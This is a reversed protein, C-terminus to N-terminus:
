RDRSGALSLAAGAVVVLGTVLDNVGAHRIAPDTTYGLFAPAAALFLGLAVNVRSAWRGTSWSLLHLSALFAVLAGVVLDVFMARQDPYTRPYGLVFPAALLWLGAVLDVLGLVRLRGGERAAGRPISGPATTRQDRTTM